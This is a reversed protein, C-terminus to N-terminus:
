KEGGATIVSKVIFSLLVLAAAIILYPVFSWTDEFATFEQLGRLAGLSFFITGLVLLVTGALGLAVYSGARKLPDVTEQLAYSKILELIGRIDAAIGETPTESESAV